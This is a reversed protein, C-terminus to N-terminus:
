NKIFDNFVHEDILTLLVIKKKCYVDNYNIWHHNRVELMSHYTLDYTLMSGNKNEYWYLGIEMNSPQDLLDIPQRINLDGIASKTTYVISGEQLGLRPPQNNPWSAEKNKVGEVVGQFIFSAKHYCGLKLSYNNTKARSPRVKPKVYLM